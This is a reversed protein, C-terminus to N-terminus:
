YWNQGINQRYTKEESSPPTYWKVDMEEDLGVTGFAVKLLARLPNVLTLEDVWILHPVTKVKKIGKLLEPLVEDLSYTPWKSFQFFTTPVGKFAIGVMQNPNESKSYAFRRVVMISEFEGNNDFVTDTDLAKFGAKKAFKAIAKAIKKQKPTGEFQDEKINDGEQTEGDECSQVEDWNIPRLDEGELAVRPLPPPHGKWLGKRASEGSSIVTQNMLAKKVHSAIQKALRSTATVSTSMMIGDYVLFDYVPLVTTQMMIPFRDRFQEGVRSGMGKVLYVKGLNKGTTIGDEEEEEIQILLTGAPVLKHVWFMGHVREEDWVRMFRVMNRVILNYKSGSLDERDQEWKATNGFHDIAMQENHIITSVTKDLVSVNVGKHGTMTPDVKYMTYVQANLLAVDPDSRSLEMFQSFDNIVCDGTLENVAARNLMLIQDLFRGHGERIKGDSSYRIFRQRRDEEAEEEPTLFPNMNRLLVGLTESSEGTIPVIHVPHRTAGDSSQPASGIIIGIRGNIAKGKDSTLGVIKIKKGKTLLSRVYTERVNCAKTLNNPIGDVHQVNELEHLSLFSLAKVLVDEHLNEFTIPENQDNPDRMTNTVFATITATDETSM